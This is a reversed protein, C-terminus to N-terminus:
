HLLLLSTFSIWKHLRIRSCVLMLRDASKCEDAKHLCQISDLAASSMGTCTCLDIIAPGHCTELKVNDNYIYIYIYIYLLYHLIKM